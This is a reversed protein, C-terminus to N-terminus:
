NGYSSQLCQLWRATLKAPEGPTAAIVPIVQRSPDIETLTIEKLNENLWRAPLWGIAAPNNTIVESLIRTSPALWIRGNPASPSDLSLGAVEAYVDTGQSYHWVDVSAASFTEAAPCDPCFQKLVDAWSPYGGRDLQFVQSVNLQQLPNTKHAAFVLRDSGLRYIRSGAPITHDGWMLSVDAETKGMEGAPKEELILQLEPNQM